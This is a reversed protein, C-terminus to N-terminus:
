SENPRTDSSGIIQAIDALVVDLPKDAPWAVYVPRWVPNFRDKYNRLGQYSYFHRGFRFGLSMLQSRKEIHDDSHWNAMPAEGLSLFRYGKDRAWNMVEVFIFDLIGPSADPSYRIMGVTLEDNDAGLWITAFGILRGDREM